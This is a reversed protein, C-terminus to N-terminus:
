AEGKPIEVIILENALKRAKVIALEQTPFPGAEMTETTGDDLDMELVAKWGHRPVKRIGIRVQTPFSESKTAM